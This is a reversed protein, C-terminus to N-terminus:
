ASRLTGFDLHDLPLPLPVELPATEPCEDPCCGIHFELTPWLNNFFKTLAAPNSGAVWAKFTRWGEFCLVVRFLGSYCVPATNMSTERM